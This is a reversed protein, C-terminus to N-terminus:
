EADDSEEDGILLCLTPVLPRIVSHSGFPKLLFFLLHSKLTKALRCLSICACLRKVGTM